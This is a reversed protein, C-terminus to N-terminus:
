GNSKEKRLALRYMRGPIVFTNDCENCCRDNENFEPMVIEGDPTKWVAGDPNNGYGLIEKGCICCKTIKEKM